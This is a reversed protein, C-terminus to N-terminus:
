DNITDEPLPVPGIELDKAAMIVSNEQIYFDGKSYINVKGSDLLGGSDKDVTGGFLHEFVAFSLSFSSEIIGDPHGKLQIHDVWGFAPMFSNLLATAESSSLVFSERIYDDYEWVFDDFSMNTSIQKREEEDMEDLTIGDFTVQIKTKQLAIEQDEPTYRVGLDRPKFFFLKGFFWVGISVIAIIVILLIILGYRIKHKPTPYSSYHSTPQRGTNYM